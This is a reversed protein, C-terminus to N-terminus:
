KKRRKKSNDDEEDEKSLDNEIKLLSAAYAIKEANETEREVEERKAKEAALIYGNLVNFVISSVASFGSAQGDLVSAQKRLTEAQLVCHQRQREADNLIQLLTAEYFDKINNEIVGQNVADAVRKRIKIIDENHAM